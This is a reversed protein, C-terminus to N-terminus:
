FFFESSIFLHLTNIQFNYSVLQASECTLLSEIHVFLTKWLQMLDQESKTYKEDKARVGKGIENCFDSGALTKAGRRSKNM